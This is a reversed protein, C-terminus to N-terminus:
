CASCRREGLLLRHRVAVVERLPVRRIDLRGDSVGEVLCPRQPRGEFTELLPAGRPPLVDVLDEVVQERGM